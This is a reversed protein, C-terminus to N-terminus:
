ATGKQKQLLRGGFYFFIIAGIIWFEEQSLPIRKLPFELWASLNPALINFFFVGLALTAGFPRICGNWLRVLWPQRQTQMEVMFMQRASEADMQSVNLEKLWMEVREKESMKPPWVRDLVNKAAGGALNGLEKVIATVPNLNSLFDGLGMELDGEQFLIPAKYDFFTAKGGGGNWM